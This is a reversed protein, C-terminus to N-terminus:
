YKRHRWVVHNRLYSGLVAALSLEIRPVPGLESSTSLAYYSTVATFSTLMGWVAFIKYLRKSGFLTYSPTAQRSSHWRWISIPLAIASGIISSWMYYPLLWTPKWSMKPAYLALLVWTILNFAHYIGESPSIWPGNPRVDNNLYSPAFGTEKTYVAVTLASDLGNLTSIRPPMKDVYGLDRVFDPQFDKRDFLLLGLLPIQYKFLALVVSAAYPLHWRSTRVALGLSSLNRPLCYFGILNSLLEGRAGFSDPRIWSTHWLARIYIWKLAKPLRIWSSLRSLLGSPPNNWCWNCKQTSPWQVSITSFYLERLHVARKGFKYLELAQEPNALDVERSPVFDLKLLSSPLQKFLDIPEMPRPLTMSTLARHNCLSRAPDTPFSLDGSLYLTHIMSPISDISLEFNSASERARAGEVHLNNLLPLLGNQQQRALAVLVDNGAAEIRLNELSRPLLPVLQSPFDISNIRLASLGSLIELTSPPTASPHATSPHGDDDDEDDILSLEHINLTLLSQPLLKLWSLKAFSLSMSTLTNPLNLIDQKCKPLTNCHSLSPFHCISESPMIWALMEVNTQAEVFRLNRPIAHTPREYDKFRANLPGLAAQSKLLSRDFNLKLHTLTPPLLELQNWTKFPYTDVKLSELRPFLDRPTLESSFVLNSGIRLEGGLIDIHKLSSAVFSLDMVTEPSLRLALSTLSRLQGPVDEGLVLEGRRNLQALLHLTELNPPLHALNFIHVHHPAHIRLSRLTKPYGDFRIGASYSHENSCSITLSELNPVNNFMGRWCDSDLIRFIDNFDLELSTLTPPFLTAQLGERALLQPSWTTLHLSRLHQFSEILSKSANWDFYATSEWRLSLTGTRRVKSIITSDGTLILYFSANHSSYSLVIDLCDISLSSISRQLNVLKSESSTNNM